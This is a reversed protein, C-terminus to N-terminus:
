KKTKTKINDINDTIPARANWRKIAISKKSYKLFTPYGCCEENPCSVSFFGKGNTVVNAEGGCFPCPLLKAM